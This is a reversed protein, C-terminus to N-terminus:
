VISSMVKADAPNVVIELAKYEQKQKAWKLLTKESGVASLTSVLVQESIDL